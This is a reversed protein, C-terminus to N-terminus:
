IEDRGWEDKREDLQRFLSYPAHNAVRRPRFVFRNLEELRRDEFSQDLPFEKDFQNFDEVHAAKYALDIWEVLPAIAETGTALLSDTVHKVGALVLWAEEASEIDCIEYVADRCNKQIRRELISGDVVEGLGCARLLKQRQVRDIAETHQQPNWWNLHPCLEDYPVPYEELVCGLFLTTGVATLSKPLRGMIPPITKTWISEPDDWDLVWRRSFLFRLRRVSVEEGQEELYDALILGASDTGTTLYNEILQQKM